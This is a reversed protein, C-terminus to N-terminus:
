ATRRSRRRRSRDAVSDHSGGKFRYVVSMRPVGNMQTRIAHGIVLRGDRILPRLRDRMIACRSKTPDQGLAEVMEAITAGADGAPREALAQRLSDIDLEPSPRM